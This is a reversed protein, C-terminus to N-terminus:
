ATNKLELAETMCAAFYPQSITQGKGIPLSRNEYAHDKLNAPVLEHRQVNLMATLTCLQTIGRNQLQKKVM